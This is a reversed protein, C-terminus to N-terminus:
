HKKKQDQEFKTISRADWNINERIIRAPTGAIICNSRFTKKTLTSGAGIVCDPPIVVDKGIFVNMGVWVHSAIHIGFNAKNIAVNPEDMSYITHGDSTRLEVNLASMFRDGILVEMNKEDGAYISMTGINCEDGFYVTGNRNGLNINLSHRTKFDHGFYILGNEGMTISSNKLSIDDWIIIISNQGRYKVNLHYRRLAEEPTIVDFKESSTNDSHMVVIRNGQKTLNDDRLRPSLLKQETLPLSKFKQQLNEILSFM